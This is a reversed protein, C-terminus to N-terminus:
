SRLALPLVSRCVDHVQAALQPGLIGVEILAPLLAGLLAGLAILWRKKTRTSITPVAVVEVQLPQPDSATPTPNPPFLDPEDTM